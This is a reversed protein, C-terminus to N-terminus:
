RADALQRQHIQESGIEKQAEDWANLPTIKVVEESLSVNGDYEKSFRNAHDYFKVKQSNTSNKEHETTTITSSPKKQVFEPVFHKRNAAPPKTPVQAKVKQAKTPVSLAKSASPKVIPVIKTKLLPKKVPSKTTKTPSTLKYTKKVLPDTVISTASPKSTKNSQGLMDSIRTIVQPQFLPSSTSVDTTSVSSNISEFITPDYDDTRSKQKSKTPSKKKTPTLRKRKPLIDIPKKKNVVKPTDDIVIVSCISSVSSSSLSSDSQVDISDTVQTSVTVVRKEKITDKRGAAKSKLNDTAIKGRQQALKRNKQKQEEIKRIKENEREAELHADGVHALCSRLDCETQGFQKKRWNMM